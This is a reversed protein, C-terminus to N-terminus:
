MEVCNRAAFQTNSFGIQGTIGQFNNRISRQRRTNINKGDIFPAARALITQNSLLYQYRLM